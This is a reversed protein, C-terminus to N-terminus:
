LNTEYNPDQSFVFEVYSLWLCGWIMQFTRETWRSLVGDSPASSALVPDSFVSSSIFFVSSSLFSSQASFSPLHELCAESPVSELISDM